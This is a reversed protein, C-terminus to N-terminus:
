GLGRRAAKSLSFDPLGSARCEAMGDVPDLDGKVM